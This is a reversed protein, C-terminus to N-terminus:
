TTQPRIYTYQTVSGQYGNSSRPKLSLVVYENSCFQKYRNVEQTNMIVIKIQDMRASLFNLVRSHILKSGCFMNGNKYWTVPTDPTEPYIGIFNGLPFGLNVCIHTWNIWLAGVFDTRLIKLDSNLTVGELQEM